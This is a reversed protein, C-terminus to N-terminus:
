GQPPAAPPTAVDATTAVTAVACGRARFSAWGESGESRRRHSPRAAPCALGPGAAAGFTQRAQPNSRPRTHLCALTTLARALSTTQTASSSRAAPPARAAAARTPASAASPRQSPAM